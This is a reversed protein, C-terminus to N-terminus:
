LITVHAITLSLYLNLAGVASWAYIGEQMFHYLVISWTPLPDKQFIWFPYKLYGPRDTELNGLM